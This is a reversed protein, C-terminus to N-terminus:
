VFFPNQENESFIENNKMIEPLFQVNKEFYRLKSHSGIVSTFASQYFYPTNQFGKSYVKENGYVKYDTVNIILKFNSTLTRNFEMKETKWFFLFSRKEQMYNSEKKYFDYKERCKHHIEEIPFNRSISFVNPYHGHFVKRKGRIKEGWKKSVQVAFILFVM